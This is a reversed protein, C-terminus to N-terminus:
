WGLYGLDDELIVCSMERSSSIIFARGPGSNIATCGQAVPVLSECLEVPGLGLRRTVPM